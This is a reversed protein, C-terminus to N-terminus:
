NVARLFIKLLYRLDSFSPVISRDLRVSDDKLLYRAGSMTSILNALGFALILKHPQEFGMLFYAIVMVCISVVAMEVSPRGRGTSRNAELVVARLPLTFSACLLGLAMGRAELYQSGYLVPIAFPLLMGGVLITIVSILATLRFILALRERREVGHMGSLYPFLVTNVASTIVAYGAGVASFAVFYQGLVEDPWAGIAFFRDLAAAIVGVAVAPFLKLGTQGADAVFNWDPKAILVNHYRMGWFILMPTKSLLFLVLVLQASLATGQVTWAVLIFLSFLGPAAVKALNVLLFQMRSREAASLSQTLLSLLTLLGTFLILNPMSLGELDLDIFPLLLIFVLSALVSLGVAVGIMSAFASEFRKPQERLRVIAGDFFSLSCLAALSQGVLLVTGYEARAAPGLARAILVGSVFTIFAVIVSSLSTGLFASIPSSSRPM